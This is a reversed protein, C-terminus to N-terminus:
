LWCRSRALPTLSLRGRSTSTTPSSTWFRQQLTPSLQEYMSELKGLYSSMDKTGTLPHSSQLSELTHKWASERNRKKLYKGVLELALPMGGCAKLVQSVQLHKDAPPEETGFVLLCFMKMAEAVDLEEVEYLESVLGMDNLVSCLNADRSTVLVRSKPPLALKEPLLYKLDSPLLVNDLYLFVAERCEKLYKGLMQSGELPYGIRQKEGSLRELISAQELRVINNGEFNVQKNQIDRSIFHANSVSRSRVFKLVKTLPHSTEWKLEATLGGQFISVHTYQM